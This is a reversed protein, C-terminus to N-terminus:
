DEFLAKAYDQPDFHEIDDLAEGTGTFRVSVGLEMVIPILVGGKATGDLKTIILGTLGLQENFAAAQRLGNQGVTADLVLWVEDPAGPKM